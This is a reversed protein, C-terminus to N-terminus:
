TYAIILAPSIGSMEYWPQYWMHVKHYSQTSASQRNIMDFTGEICLPMDVIVSDKLPLSCYASAILFSIHVYLYSVDTFSLTPVFSSLRARTVNLFSPKRSSPSFCDYASPRILWSSRKRSFTNSKCNTHQTQFSTHRANCQSTRCCPQCQSGRVNLRKNKIGRTGPLGGAEISLVANSKRTIIVMM